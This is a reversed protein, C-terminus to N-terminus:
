GIKQGTMMKIFEQDEISKEGHKKYDL